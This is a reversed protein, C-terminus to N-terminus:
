GAAADLWLLIEQLRHGVLENESALKMGAIVLDICEASRSVCALGILGAV